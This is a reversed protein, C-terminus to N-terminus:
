LLKTEATSPIIIPTSRTVIVIAPIVRLPPMSRLRRKARM